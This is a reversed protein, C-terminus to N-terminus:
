GLPSVSGKAADLAFSQRLHADAVSLLIEGYLKVVFVAFALLVFHCVKHCRRKNTRARFRGNNGM